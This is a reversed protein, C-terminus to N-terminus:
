GAVRLVETLSTEGTQALRLGDQLLPVMGQEYAAQRISETPLCQHVAERLITTMLLLEAIPTRGVFGQMECLECGKPEYYQCKPLEVGLRKFRERHIPEPEAPTRCALCLTRVLRQSLSGITGSALLFPEIKMDILRAFPGAAGDAHVTTLILHGTLAAQMAIDATEPDRIEGLMLVNPDQRLVSRLVSAFKMGTKANMQTQTAFSLELEIPDELTVLSTTTGRARAICDLAAYLTTTKGSGVPGTVFILGQPRALLQLLQDTVGDSFGLSELQPVNRGGRVLRLVVREGGETPLTSVRAEIVHAGIRTVLRGDQPNSRVHLDLRSMVKIRNVVRGALAHSISTVEHLTGHVRYTVQLGASLPSFHIDSARVAIAGRMLEQVASVIDPHDLDLCHVLRERIQRVVQQLNEADLEGLVLHASSPRRSLVHRLATLGFGLLLSGLGVMPLWRWHGVEFAARYTAVWTAADFTLSQMGMQSVRFVRM